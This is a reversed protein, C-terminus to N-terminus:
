AKRSSFGMEKLRHQVTKDCINVGAEEWKKKMQNLQKDPCKSTKGHQKYKTWIKLVASQSCGVDLHQVKSHGSSQKM